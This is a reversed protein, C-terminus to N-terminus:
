PMSSHGSEPSSGLAHLLHSPAPGNATISAENGNMKAPSTYGLPLAHLNTSNIHLRPFPLFTQFSSLCTSVTDRYTEPLKYQLFHWCLTHLGIMPAVTKLPGRFPLYLSVDRTLRALHPIGLVVSFVRLVDGQAEFSWSFNRVPFILGFVIDWWFQGM